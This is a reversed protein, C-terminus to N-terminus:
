HVFIPSNAPSAVLKLAMENFAVQGRLATAVHPMKMMKEVFSIQMVMASNLSQLGFGYWMTFLSAPNPMAPAASPAPAALSPAATATATASVNAPTPAAASIPATVEPAPAAVVPAAVVPATLVQPALAAAETKPAEALKKPAAPQPVSVATQKKPAPTARAAASRPRAEAPSRNAAVPKFAAPKAEAPKAPAVEAALEDKIEHFKDRLRRISSPDSIGTSKIATTPKMAPDSALLQAVALLRSRDDLGTGKPRGRAARSQTM